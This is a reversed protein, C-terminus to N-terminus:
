KCKGTLAKYAAVPANLLGTGTDKLCDPTESSTVAEAMTDKPGGRRLQANAQDAFNPQRVPGIGSRYV